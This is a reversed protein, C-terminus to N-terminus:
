VYHNMVELWRNYRYNVQKEAYPRSLLSYALREDSDLLSHVDRRVQELLAYPKNRHRSLGVAMWEFFAVNADANGQLRPHFSKAEGYLEAMAEMTEQFLNGGSWLRGPEDLYRTLYQTLDGTYTHFGQDAFAFFRLVADQAYANPIKGKVAQHFNRDWVCDALFRQVDGEFLLVRFQGPKMRQSGEHIRRLLEYRMRPDTEQKIIRVSIWYDQVTRRVSAELMDFRNGNLRSMLSMGSLRFRGDLFAFLSSLRHHGDVVIMPGSRMEALYVPPLPINALASEIVGSKKVVDWQPTRSFQPNMFLRDTLQYTYLEYLSIQMHEIMVRRNFEPIDHLWGGDDGMAEYMSEGGQWWCIGSGSGTIMAEIIVYRYLVIFAFMRGM